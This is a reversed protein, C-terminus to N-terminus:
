RTVMSRQTSSKKDRRGKHWTYNPRKHSHRTSTRKFKCSAAKRKVRICFAEFSQNQEQALKRFEHNALTYNSTEKFRDSLKKSMDEFKLNM